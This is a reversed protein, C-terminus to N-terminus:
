RCSIAKEQLRYIASKSMRTEQTILHILVSDRKRTLALMRTRVSYYHSGKISKPYHGSTTSLTSLDLNFPGLSPGLDSPTKNNSLSHSPIENDPGSDSSSSSERNIIFSYRCDVESDEEINFLSLLLDM